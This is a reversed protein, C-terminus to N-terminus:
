GEGHWRRLDARLARLEALLERLVAATSERGATAPESEARRRAEAEIAEVPWVLSGGRQKVAGLMGAMQRLRRESVGLRKAAEATSLFRRGDSM